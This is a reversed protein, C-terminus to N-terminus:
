KLKVTEMGVVTDGNYLSIKVSTVESSVPVSILVNGATKFSATQEKTSLKNNGKYQELVVKHDSETHGLNRIEVDVAKGDASVEASYIEVNSVAALFPIAPQGLRSELNGTMVTIYQKEFGDNKALSAYAVERKQSSVDFAYTIKSPSGSETTIVVTDGVIETKIIKLEKDSSNYARFGTLEADGERIKLGNANSFTLTAVNDKVTISQYEPNQYVAYEAAKGYVNTLISYAAREAVPRKTGPHISNGWGNSMSRDLDLCHGGSPSSFVAGEYAATIAYVNDMRKATDLQVQRMLNYYDSYPALQFIVVPLDADRFDERWQEILDHLIYNYQESKLSNARAEGQYWMVGAVAYNAIPGQMGNYLGTPAFRNGISGESGEILTGATKQTDYIKGLSWYYDYDEWITRGECGSSNKVTPIWAHNNYVDERDEAFIKEYSLWPNAASGGNHCEIIAVPVGLEKYLTYATIYGIASVGSVNDSTIQKWGDSRVDKQLEFQSTINIKFGRIDCNSADKVIDEVNHTRAISLQMNSQGSCYWVEGIGINRYTKDYGNCSVTLTQDTAAKMASLEVTFEGNSDVTGKATNSGVTAIVEAGPVADWGWVVIPKERQLVMGDAFISSMKFSLDKKIEVSIDDVYVTSAYKSPSGLSLFPRIPYYRNGIMGIDNKLFDETIEFEFEVPTWVGEAVSVTNYALETTKRDGMFGWRMKVTNTEEATGGIGEIMVYASIKFSYGVYKEIDTPMLNNLKIRSSFAGSAIPSLGSIVLAKEGGHAKGAKAGVKPTASQGGMKYEKNSDTLSEYSSDTYSSFTEKASEFDETKYLGLIPTGTPTEEKADMETEVETEIETEKDTEKETADLPKETEPQEENVSEEKSANESEISAGCSALMFIMLFVLVLSLFKKM